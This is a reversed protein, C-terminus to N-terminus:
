RPTLPSPTATAIAAALDDDARKLKGALLELRAEAGVTTIWDRFLGLIQDATFTKDDDDVSFTASGIAALVKIPM